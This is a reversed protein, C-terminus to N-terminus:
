VIPSPTPAVGEEAVKRSAKRQEYYKKNWEKRQERIKETAKEKRVKRVIEYYKEAFEEETMNLIIKGGQFLVSTDADIEIPM